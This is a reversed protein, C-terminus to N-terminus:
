PKGTKFDNIDIEYGNQQAWDVLAKRAAAKRLKRIELKIEANKKYDNRLRKLEEKSM